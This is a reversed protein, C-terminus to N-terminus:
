IKNLTIFTEVGEVDRSVFVNDPQEEGEYTFLRYVYQPTIRNTRRRIDEETIKFSVNNALTLRMLYKKDGPREDYPQITAPFTNVSLVKKIEYNFRDVIDGQILRVFLAGVIEEPTRNEIFVSIVSNITYNGPKSIEIVGKSFSVHKSIHEPRKWLEDPIEYTLPRPLDVIEGAESTYVVLKLNDCDKERRDKCHDDRDDRCYDKKKRRYKKDNNKWTFAFLTSMSM